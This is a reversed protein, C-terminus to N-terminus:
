PQWLPDASQLYDALPAFLAFKTRPCAALDDRYFQQCETETFGRKIRWYAEQVIHEITYSPWLRVTRDFYSHTLITEGDPSFVASTVWYEHGRLIALQNGQRDWLRATHDYSATLITEGNPSFTASIVPGEHGYLIALQNGRRDWLRATRDHSSTLILEGDPSFTASTIWDTHEGLVALQNGQRDWLRATADDFGRAFTLITQGDLGFIASEVYDEHGLLVALQNGETDWLRATSKSCRPMPTVEEEDCGATLVIQGDPSFVASSLIFEQGLWTTLQYGGQDWLRVTNEVSTTLISQGNPSFLALEVVGEHGRLIALTNGWTDWLRATTDSSATLITQGDPSFMASRVSDEHGQLVALQNGQTDWLRATGKSCSASPTFTQEDCGATLITQSDPSFSVSSVSEEHPYLTILNEQVDWLQATGDTRATLISRGDPSFTAAQVSGGHRQLVALAKGKNDWVRAAGAACTLAFSDIEGDCDVTLILQGNHSFEGSIVRGENGRFIALQNGQRDWLRATSEICYSLAGREDCGTTLITQEDPSFDASSIGYEHANWAMLQNGRRDWLRVMGNSSSTLILLGSRSFRALRVEGVEELLMALQNGQRDWLRATGDEGATLIIQGDPSLDASYVDKQNVHLTTLLNGRADWLEASGLSCIESVPLGIECGSTLISQGDASFVVSNIWSEHVYLVALQVGHRSWLRVTKDTRGLRNFGSVTLITQSDPSFTAFELWGDHGRLAALQNGRRDWLRATGDRSATLVTQGDPSFLASEVIDEHGYYTARYSSQLVNILQSQTDPQILIRLGAVALLLAREPENALEARAAEALQSAQIATRLKRLEAESIEATARAAEAAMRGEGEAIAAAEATSAAHEASGRAERAQASEQHAVNLFFLAVLTAIVAVGAAVSTWRTLRRFRSTNAREQRLAEEKKIRETEAQQEVEKATLSAEVFRKSLENLTPKLEALREVVQVLRGGRYLYGTDQSRTWAQADSAIQNQLAIMERNDDVLQRLWPWADILKEHALTVTVQGPMDAEDEHNGGTTLLRAGARALSDVVATLEAADQGAPILEWLVATRRTDVRGQGIEILKSFVSKALAKQEESLRALVQNAHRELASEVGGRDLYEQLTLDMPEGKKTKEAEFLDRLAFSMLPLAGPEGKMDAMIRSVLAPDIDAGVELAPLTIAKALDPPEMAGALQFQRSVLERLDPYRACHSVFDSRLALLILIRSKPTQAAVTLLRIFASRVAEEKTQTFIEEFQDVLLVFRQQPDDTLVTKVQEHLARLDELAHQRIYNGTGPSQTAREVATALQEIPDGGPQMTALLWRDSKPLCGNRLAHFLGARAVSSKGSGSPGAIVIFHAVTVRQLLDDVLSERGFFFEADSEQFASLGLYPIRGDWVKPQDQRKLEIMLAAVEAVTLGQYVATAGRGIAVARSDRIDGVQIHDGMDIPEPKEEQNEV